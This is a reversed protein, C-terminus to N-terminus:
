SGWEELIADVPGQQQNQYKGDYPMETPSTLQMFIIQAIPTGKLIAFPRDAHNTLELTLWGRWGPEIITNQVAVGQRAWTSKDCVQGVLDNPMSFRELTAALVFGQSPLWLTESIRVDYGCSSYGFSMGFAKSPEVAPELLLQHECRHKIEQYPLIM